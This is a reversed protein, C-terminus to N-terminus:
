GTVSKKVMGFSEQVTGSTFIALGYRETTLQFESASPERYEDNISAIVGDVYPGFESERTPQDLIWWVTLNKSGRILKLIASNQTIPAQYEIFESKRGLDIWGPADASHGYDGGWSNRKSYQYDGSLTVKDKRLIIADSKAVLVDYASGLPVEIIKTTTFSDGPDYWEGPSVVPGSQILDYGEVNVDRRLDLQSEDIDRLWDKTTRAKSAHAKRATVQYLSGAIYLSVEGKNAMHMYLPLSVSKGDPTISARGFTTTLELKSSQAYPKYIQTYAFNAVALVGSLLVGVAFKKPQPIRRWVGRRHLMFLTWCSWSALSIWAWLYPTYDGGEIQLVLLGLNMFGIIAVGALIIAGSYSPGRSGSSYAFMAFVAALALLSSFLFTVGIIRGGFTVATSADAAGLVGLEIAGCSLGVGTLIAFALIRKSKRDNPIPGSKSM